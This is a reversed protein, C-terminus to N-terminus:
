CASGGHACPFGNMSHIELRDEPQASVGGVASQTCSGRSILGQVRADKVFFALSPPFKPYHFARPSSSAFFQSLPLFPFFPHIVTQLVSLSAPKLRLSVMHLFTMGQADMFRLDAKQSILGQVAQLDGEQCAKRCQVNIDSGPAGYTGGHTPSLANFARCSVCWTLLLCVQCYLCSIKIAQM